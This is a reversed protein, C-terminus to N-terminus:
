TAPADLTDVDPQEGDKPFAAEFATGIMDGLQSSLEASVKNLFILKRYKDTYTTNESFFRDIKYIGDFLFSITRVDVDDKDSCSTDLTEVVNQGNASETLSFLPVNDANIRDM